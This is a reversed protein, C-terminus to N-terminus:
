YPRIELFDSKTAHLSSLHTGAKADKCESKLKLIVISFWVELAFDFLLKLIINITGDM